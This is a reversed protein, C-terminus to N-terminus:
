KNVNLVGLKAFIYPIVLNHLFSMEGHLNIMLSDHVIILYKVHSFTM